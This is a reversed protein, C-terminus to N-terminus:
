NKKEWLREIEGVLTKVSGNGGRDCQKWQGDDRVCWERGDVRVTCSRHVGLAQSHRFSQQLLALGSVVSPDDPNPPNADIQRSACANLADFDIGHELACNQVLARSPINAYDSLMCNAFGLSRIVPMKPYATSAAAPAPLNAACLLLM